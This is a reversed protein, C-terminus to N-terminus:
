EVAYVSPKGGKRDFAYITFPKEKKGTMGPSGQPMGPLAIGAIAPKERLMRQTRFKDLEPTEVIKIDFGYGKLYKAHEDCCGCDPNKYLTASRAKGARAAPVLAAVAVVALFSRRSTNLMSKM